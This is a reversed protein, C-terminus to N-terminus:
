IPHSWGSIGTQVLHKRHSLWRQPISAFRSAWPDIGLSAARTKGWGSGRRDVCNAKVHLNTSELKTFPPELVSSHHLGRNNSREHCSQPLDLVHSMRLGRENVVDPERGERDDTAIAVEENRLSICRTRGEEARNLLTQLAVQAWSRGLHM